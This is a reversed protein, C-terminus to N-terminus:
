TTEVIDIKSLMHRFTSLLFNIDCLYRIHISSESLVTSSAFSLRVQTLEEQKAACTVWKLLKSFSFIVHHRTSFM